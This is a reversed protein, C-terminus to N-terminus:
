KKDAQAQPEKFAASIANISATTPYNTGGNWAVIVFASAFLVFAIARLMAAVDYHVTVKREVNSGADKNGGGM